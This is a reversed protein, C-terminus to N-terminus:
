SEDEDEEEEDSDDEEDWEEEEEDDWEEEVMEPEEEAPAEPEEWNNLEEHALDESYGHRLLWSLAEERGTIHEPIVSM